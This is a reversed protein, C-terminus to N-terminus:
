VPVYNKSTEWKADLLHSITVSFEKGNTWVATLDTEGDDEKIIDMLMESNDVVLVFGKLDLPLNETSNVRISALPVMNYLMKAEEESSSIIRIRVGEDATKRNFLGIANRYDKKLIGYKEVIISFPTSASLMLIDKQAGELMQMAKDMVNRVGNITWMLEETNKESSEDYLDHLQELVSDCEESYDRKLKAIASEPPICRYRMPKTNQFEIIGRKELKKLAGYIASNPVGSDLHLESVTASENKVLAAYVKAEYSTFGLNQLSTM